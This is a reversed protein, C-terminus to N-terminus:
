EKGNFFAHNNIVGAAVRMNWHRLRELADNRGRRPLFCFWLAALLQCNDHRRLYSSMEGLVTTDRASAFGGPSPMGLLNTVDVVFGDDAGDGWDVVSDFWGASLPQSEAYDRDSLDPSPSLVHESGCSPNDTHPRPVSDASSGREGSPPQFLRDFCLMEAAPTEM